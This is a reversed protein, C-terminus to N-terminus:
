WPPTQSAFATVSLMPRPDSPKMRRYDRPHLCTNAHRGFPHPLAQHFTLLPSSTFTPQPLTHFSKVDPFRVQYLTSLRRTSPAFFRHPCHLPFCAPTLITSPACPPSALLGASSLCTQRPIHILCPNLSPYLQCLSFSHHSCLFIASPHHAVLPSSLFHFSCFSPPPAFLIHDRCPSFRALSHDRLPFLLSCFLSPPGFRTHDAAPTQFTPGQYIHLWLIGSALSYLHPASIYSCWKLDQASPISTARLLPLSKHKPSPRLSFTFLHVIGPLSISSSSLPFVSSKYVWGQCRIGVKLPSTDSAGM